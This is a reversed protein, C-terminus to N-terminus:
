LDFLQRIKEDRTEIRTELEHVQRNLAEILTNKREELQRCYIQAEILDAYAKKACIRVDSESLEDITKFHSLLEKDGHSLMKDINESM